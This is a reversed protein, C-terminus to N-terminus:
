DGVRGQMTITVPASRVPKAVLADNQFRMAIVRVEIPGTFSTLLAWSSPDPVWFAEALMVRLIETCGQTFELVYATGSLSSYAYASPELLDLARRLLDRRSDYTPQHWVFISWNDATLMDGDAPEDIVPALPDSSGTVDGNAEATVFARCAQPTFFVDLTTITACLGADADSADASAVADSSGADSAGGDVRGADSQSSPDCALPPFFVFTSDDGACRNPHPEALCSPADVPADAAPAAERSDGAKETTSDGPAGDLPSSSAAPPPKSCSAALALVGATLAGTLFALRAM